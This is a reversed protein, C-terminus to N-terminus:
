QLKGDKIKGMARKVFSNDIFDELNVATDIYGYKLLLEQVKDMIAVKMLPPLEYTAIEVDQFEGEMMFAKDWSRDKEEEPLNQEYVIRKVYADVVKQVEEPNSAIYDKRFVLVGQSVPPDIWDMPRYVYVTGKEVENKVGLMHILGGDVIGDALWKKMDDEEVQDIITVDGEGLGEAELFERLFIADGPGARRSFLTKGKLDESSEIAVEKRMVLAKAPTKEYGLQAVAVIPEGKAVSSVFSSEGVTGADLEGKMMSDIIELGSIKGFYLGAEGLVEEVKLTEEHKKSLPFIEKDKLFKTYLTVDVGERDFYGNIYAKYIMNVRGGHFYGIRVSAAPEASFTLYLLIGGLILVFLVFLFGRRSMSNRMVSKFIGMNSQARLSKLPCYTRRPALSQMM